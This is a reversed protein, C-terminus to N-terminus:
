SEKDTGFHLDNKTISFLPNGLPGRPQPSPNPSLACLGRETQRRLRIHCRLMGGKTIEVAVEWHPQLWCGIIAILFQMDRARLPGYATLTYQTGSDRALHLKDVSSNAM